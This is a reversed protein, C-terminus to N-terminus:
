KLLRVVITVVSFTLKSILLNRIVSNMSRKRRNGTYEEMLVVTILSWRELTTRHPTGHTRQTLLGSMVRSWSSLHLFCMVKLRRLGGSRGIKPCIFQDVSGVYAEKPLAANTGSSNVFSRAKSPRSSSKGLKIPMLTHLHPPRCHWQALYIAGSPM